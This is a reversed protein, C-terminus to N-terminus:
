GSAHRHAGGVFVIWGVFIVQPGDGIGHGLFITRDHIGAENELEVAGVYRHDGMRPSPVVALFDIAHLSVGFQVYLGDIAGYFSQRRSHDAQVNAPAVIGSWMVVVDRQAFNEFGHKRGIDGSIRELARVRLVLV